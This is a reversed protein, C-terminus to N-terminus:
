TETLVPRGIPTMLLAGLPTQIMAVALTGIATALVHAAHRIL